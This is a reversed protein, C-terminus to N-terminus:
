FKKAYRVTSSSTTAFSEVLTRARRWGNRSSSRTPALRRTLLKRASHLTVGPHVSRVRRVDYACRVINLTEGRCAQAPTPSAFHLSHHGGSVARSELVGRSYNGVPVYRSALTFPAFGAKLRAVGLKRPRQRLPTPPPTGAPSRAPSLSSVPLWSNTATREGTLPPISPKRLLSSLRLRRRPFPRATGSRRRTTALSPPIAFSAHSCPALGQSLRPAVPARGRTTPM